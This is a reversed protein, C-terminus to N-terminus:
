SIKQSRLNPPGAHLTLGTIAGQADKQFNFAIDSSLAFFQTPSEHLLKQLDPGFPAAEVCLSNSKLM